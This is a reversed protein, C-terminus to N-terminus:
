GVGTLPAIATGAGTATDLTLVNGGLRSIGYLTGNYYNLGNIAFGTDGIVTTAGTVADISYLFSTSTAESAFHSTGYLVAAQTQGSSVLLMAACAASLLVHKM